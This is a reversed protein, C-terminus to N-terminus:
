INRPQTVSSIIGGILGAGGAVQGPKNQPTNGIVIGDEGFPM